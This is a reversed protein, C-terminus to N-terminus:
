IYFARKRHVFNELLGYKDVALTASYPNADKDNPSIPARLVLRLEFRELLKVIYRPRLLPQMYWTTAM